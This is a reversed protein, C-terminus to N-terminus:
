EQGGACEHVCALCGASVRVLSLSGICTRGLRGNHALSMLLLAPDTGCHCAKVFGPSALVVCKVISFDIHRLIAQMIQDYFKEM